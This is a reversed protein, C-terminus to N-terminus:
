SSTPVKLEFHKLLKKIKIAFELLIIISNTSRLVFFSNNVM